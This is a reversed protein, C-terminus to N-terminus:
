MLPISMNSAIGYQNIYMRMRIYMNETWSTGFSFYFLVCLVLYMGMRIYGNEEWSTGFRLYFLVCHILYMRM